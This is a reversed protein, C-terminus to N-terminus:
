RSLRPLAFIQERLTNLSNTMRDSEVNVLAYRQLGPDGSESLRLYAERLDPFEHGAVREGRARASLLALTKDM